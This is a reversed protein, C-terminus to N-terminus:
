ARTLQELVREADQGELAIRLDREIRRQAFPATVEDLKERISREFATLILPVVAMHTIGYRRMTWRLLEPRLSRQHVVTAGCVFPGVFGVMFDIAHNSPLISFYHDGETMPFRELLAALQTLYARHPLLCGKPRGGTGSSYVICALDDPLTGHDVVAHADGDEVLQSWRLPVTEADPAESVIVQHDGVGDPHKRWEGYEMVVLAAGSHDLLARQEPGTLKYDLPVLTGGALFVALATMPWRSQNSMLLAVRVGPGVGHQQLSAALRRSTTLVQGATYRAVEQKRRAEVLVERGPHTLLADTLLAGLSPHSGVHM